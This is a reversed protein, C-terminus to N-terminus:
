EMPTLTPMRNPKRAPPQSLSNKPQRTAKRTTPAGPIRSATTTRILMGSGIRPRVSFRWTLLWATGSPCTTDTKHLRREKLCRAMPAPKFAKAPYLMLLQVADKIIREWAMVVPSSPVQNDMVMPRPPATPTKQPPRSASRSAGRSWRQYAQSGASAPKM